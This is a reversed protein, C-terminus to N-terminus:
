PWGKQSDPAFTGCRAKVAGQTACLLAPRLRKKVVVWHDSALAPLGGPWRQQDPLRERNAEFGGFGM